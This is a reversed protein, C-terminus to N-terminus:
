IEPHHNKQDKKKQTKLDKLLPLDKFEFIVFKKVSINISIVISECATTLFLTPSGPCGKSLKRQSQEMRQDSNRQYATAM